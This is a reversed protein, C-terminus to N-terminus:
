TLAPNVTSRSTATHRDLAARLAAAAAVRDSQNTAAELTFMLVTVTLANTDTIPTVQKM